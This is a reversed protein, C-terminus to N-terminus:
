SAPSSLPGATVALVDYGDHVRDVPPRQMEGLACVRPAGLPWWAESSAPDDTGVTSLPAGWARALAAADALGAVEIVRAVRPLAQDPLRSAGSGHVAWGPGDRVIGGLARVLAAQARALALESPGVAGRPWRAQAAVMARALGDVARAAPITTLVVVPSMCGRGDFRAFDEAVAAWGAGDDHTVWVLSRRHGLGVLTTAPGADVRVADITRDHGMAVVLPAGRIAARDTTVEVPLGVRVAEYALRAAFADGEHPVKLVVQTGRALLLVVWELPAVFAGRACVVAARPWAPGPRAGAARVVPPSLAACAAVLAARAGEPSLGTDLSSVDIQAVADILDLVRDVTTRTV